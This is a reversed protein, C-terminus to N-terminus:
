IPPDIVEINTILEPDTNLLLDLFGGAKHTPTSILQIVGYEMCLDIFSGELTGQAHRYSDRWDIRPLSFDGILLLPFETRSAMDISSRFSQLRKLRESASGTPTLYVCIVRIAGHDYLVDLCILESDIEDFRRLVPIHRKVLLCVGGGRGGRDCRFVEILKRPSFLFVPIKDSYSVVLNM